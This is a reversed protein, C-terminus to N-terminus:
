SCSPGRGGLLGQELLVGRARLLKGLHASRDSLWVECLRALDGTSRAARAVITDAVARMFVMLDRFAWALESLIDCPQKDGVVLASGPLDLLSSASKYAKQGVAVVYRDELGARQLHGRYLGGVLLIGDGAERLRQFRETPEAAMADALLVALPRDVARHLAEGQSASDELLGVVYERVAGDPAGPSLDSTEQVIERFYAGLDADLSLKAESEQEKM